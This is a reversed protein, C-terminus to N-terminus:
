PTISTNLARLAILFSNRNSRVMMWACFFLGSFNEGTASSAMFVM